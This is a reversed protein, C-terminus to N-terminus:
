PLFFVGKLDETASINVLDKISVVRFQYYMGSELAPGAYPVSPDDGSHGPEDFEWIINGFADFVIGHYSDESSDDQWAFTPSGTIEEPGQAGPMFIELAETVKFGDATTTMGAMVVVHQTATGGISTDPDRVLGDNEFAALIVYNGAPVNDITFDGSVNEVRIGPPADGRAVNEQFTSEVVLIVSCMAGGPANVIQINGSLTGVQPTEDLALDVTADDGAALTANGTSFTFGLAYAKVTYDGAALNFIKYDGDRDAIASFGTGGSEAVVLIGVRDEPVAVTGHLSATGGGAPNALLGVDTLASMIVLSGDTEVPGGTSIPLAQRIGFPFTQYGAADVRLTVDTVIPAGMEDRAIPLPLSYTGDTGSIAVSSVPSSNADMAVIRAGAIGQDSGIDFVRGKLLLPMACVPDGGGQVPECSLGDDCGTNAVPDCVEDDGGCAAVTFISFVLLSKILRM